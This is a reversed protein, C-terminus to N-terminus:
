FITIEVILFLSLMLVMDLILMWRPVYSNESMGDKICIIATIM